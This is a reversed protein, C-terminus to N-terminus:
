IRNINRDLNQKAEGTPRVGRIPIVRWRPLHFEQKPRSDTTNTGLKCEGIKTQVHYYKGDVPMM